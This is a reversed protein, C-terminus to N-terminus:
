TVGQRFLLRLGRLGTDGSPRRHRRNALEHRIDQEWDSGAEIAQDCWLGILGERVLPVLHVALRMLHPEDVRAYSVFVRCPRGISSTVFIAPECQVTAGYGPESSDFARMLWGKASM